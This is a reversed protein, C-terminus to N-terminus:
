KQSSMQNDSGVSVKGNVCAASSYRYDQICYMFYRCSYKINIERPPMGGSGGMRTGAHNHSGKMLDTGRTLGRKGTVLISSLLWYFLNETRYLWHSALYTCVESLSYMM